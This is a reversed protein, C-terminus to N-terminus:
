RRAGGGGCAAGARADEEAEEAAVRKAAAREADALKRLKERDEFDGKALNMRQVVAYVVGICAAPVYFTALDKVLKLRPTDPPLPEAPALSSSVGYTSLVGAVRADDAPLQVYKVAGDKYVVLARYTGEHALLVEKVALRRVDELFQNYSVSAALPVVPKHLPTWQLAAPPPPPPPPGGSAAPPPPSAAAAAVGGPRPHRRGACRRRVCPQPRLAHM